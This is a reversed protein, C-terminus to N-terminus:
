NKKVEKDIISPLRKFSQELIKLTKTSRLAAAPHFLPYIIRGDVEFVKGQDKTITASPLFYNMAFRGLTVIVKPNIIEIQRTLYPKHAEIESPKPDRNDPPRFKV